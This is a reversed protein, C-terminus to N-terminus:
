IKIITKSDTKKPLKLNLTFALLIKQYEYKLDPKLRISVGRKILELVDAM